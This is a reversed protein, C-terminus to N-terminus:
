TWDEFCGPAIEFLRHLFYGYDVLDSTVERSTYEDDGAHHREAWHEIAERRLARTAGPTLEDLADRGGEFGLVLVDRLVHHVVALSFKAGYEARQQVIKVLPDETAIFDHTDVLQTEVNRLAYGFRANSMATAVSDTPIEGPREGMLWDVVTVIGLRELTALDLLRETFPEFDGECIRAADGIWDDREIPANPAPGETLPGVEVGTEEDMGNKWLPQEAAVEDVLGLVFGLRLLNETVEASPLARRSLGNAVLNRHLQYTATTSFALWADTSAGALGAIASPSDALTAAQEVLGGFRHPDDALAEYDLTGDEAFLMQAELAAAVADPVDCDSEAVRCAYGMLALGAMVGYAPNEDDIGVSGAFASLIAVGLRSPASLEVFLDEAAQLMDMGRERDMESFQAM